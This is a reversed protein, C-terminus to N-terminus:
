NESGEVGVMLDSFLQASVIDPIDAVYSTANIFAQNFANAQRSLEDIESETPPESSLQGTLGAAQDALTQFIALEHAAGGRVTSVLQNVLDLRRQYRSQVDAWRNQVDNATQIQSNSAGIFWLALIGLIGLIAITWKM